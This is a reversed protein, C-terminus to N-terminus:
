YNQPAPPLVVVVVFPTGPPPPVPKGAGGPYRAPEYEPGAAVEGGGTLHVLVTTADLRQYGRAGPLTGDAPGDVGVDVVFATGEAVKKPLRVRAASSDPGIPCRVAYPLPSTDPPIPSEGGSGSWDAWDGGPGATSAGPSSPRSRGAWAEWDSTGSM